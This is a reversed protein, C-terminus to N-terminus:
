GGNNLGQSSFPQHKVDVFSEREAELNTNHGTQSTTYAILGQTIPYKTKLIASGSTGKVTSINAYVRFLIDKPVESFWTVGANSSDVCNGNAFDGNDKRRYKIYNTNDAASYAIWCYKTGQVFSFASMGISIWTPSTTISTIALTGSSLVTSTPLDNGDLSRLEVTVNGSPAGFKSILLSISDLASTQAFSASPATFTQGLYYNANNQNNADNNDGTDYYVYLTSM